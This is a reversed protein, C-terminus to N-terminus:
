SWPKGTYWSPQDGPSGFWGWDDLTDIFLQRVYIRYTPYLISPYYGLSKRLDGRWSSQSCAVTGKPGGFDLIHAEFWKVEGRESVLKFPAVVRIGLDSAAQRWAHSIQQDM